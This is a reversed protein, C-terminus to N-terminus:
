NRYFKSDHKKKINMTSMKELEAKTIEQKGGGPLIKELPILKLIIGWILGLSGVAICFLWSLPDLGWMAVKIAPGCFTLFIVQLFVICPVIILFYTSKTIGHFVNLQNDIVRCNIFNFVQLFVFVNFNYTYHISWNNYDDYEYGDKTRGTVIRSGSKGSQQRKGMIDFLFHEGAFVFILIVAIQFLSQGLILKMMIPNVIYDDKRYPKRRLLSDDPPETALALAGLTDMILNIWLMQVTSFIAEELIAAAVFTTIVAVINVTLQFQLFKRISDYINRGWKVAKVISVFNDDM